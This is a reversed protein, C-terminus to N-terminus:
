FIESDTILKRKILFNVVRPFYTSLFFKLAIKKNRKAANFLKENLINLNLYNKYKNNLYDYLLKKKETSVSRLMSDGLIRYDFLIKDVYQFKYNKFSLNLWLDWDEFGMVPMKEDYGGAAEWASKRFVTCADIYNEIMIQQLNFRGVVRRKTTDGFFQADGYVMVITADADLIKIGEYIYDPRIKNDADLPLIYEGVAAKIANNRTPGLGQNKQNIVHYGEEELQKMVEITYGDTSGDNIIIIEYLRKDSCQEVSEIAERVYQGHNYCPIVISIKPLM